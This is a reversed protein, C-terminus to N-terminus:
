LYIEHLSYKYNLQLHIQFDQNNFCEFIMPLEVRNIFDSDLFNQSVLLIAGQSSKIKEIM